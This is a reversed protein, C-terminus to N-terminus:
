DHAHNVEDIISTACDVLESSGWHPAAIQRVRFRSLLVQLLQNEIHQFFVFLPTTM